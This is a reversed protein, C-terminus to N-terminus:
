KLPLFWNNRDMLKARVSSANPYGAKLLKNYIRDALISNDGRHISIRVLDAWRCGEYALERGSEDLIQNELITLSDAGAAIPLNQMYVRGRVGYNRHYLGRIRPPTQIDTTSRADFDYPFPLLTQNAYTYDNGNLAPYNSSIGNNMLAYSILHKGDRNAAECYHLQLGAARWLFWKGPKEYPNVSNYDMIYKTIVPQGNSIKYSGTNETKGYSDAINGRFDGPFGNRQIQASWDDMAAQSPKLLYNGATNSFIDIFPNLQLTKHFYLVWIWESYFDTSTSTFMNPWHNWARNVDNYNDAYRNDPGYGSGFRSLVNDTSMKYNDYMNGTSLSREMINKFYSAAQLYDNPRGRWLYLEGLFYQKDIFMVRTNFGAWTTNFSADTYKGLYPLGEMCTVLSDVMDEIGLWPYKTSDALTVDEIREIPQTLYPVKGYHIVLQLYLWSRLTAVDTYRQNYEEQKFKLERLMITFHKMIDNCDNILLFFLKPDAWTNDKSITEHRSIQQLTYDANDTVDMLDARLENLIVYQPALDMLKAYLGRIAADADSIDRYVNETVLIEGPKQELWGNCSFLLIFALFGTASYFSHKLRNKM